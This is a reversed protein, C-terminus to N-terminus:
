KKVSVWVTYTSGDFLTARLLWTGQGNNGLGKTSLNFHWETGTLRFQNGTTAADTPTADIPDDFTTSNSYKIAQLTHIGTTLPAGFCVANFKVPITSNLKFSKVPNAFSGGTGTEVAGGIPPLFGNFASCATLVTVTGNVYALTYNGSTANECKTPYSGILSGVTYTTSCAPQVTLDTPDDGAVFGSYGATITPVPDNFTITHSSATITLSAKSVTLQGNVYHINYNGVGTGVAASPVINYPSGAVPAGAAAGTSTLTISDVTDANVLGALSFDTSPTTQDFVVTDGYTKTKNSATITLDRAEVTLSGNVYSIDYNALGTGVANSPIIDYPSGAVTATAAAGASTLTINTVTDTNVLGVVSFDTSPSTQDFVVTDGYTKTKNSATITLDRAEVTLSGNVYSINYNAIGTGVAASPIITYPSGAVTATAAAGASTLTISDVTDTNVLGVVSFDTSPSTQDFVVTEGYTKTKNSATITLDRAEITLSGNVYSINYNALSTGVAASPVINYPSGAVTATAAAGTSTLTISDVTDGNVLGVVSFDTSPSTQDFVVTDGYTKTKNSATVTLDRAEVTLSGNVYSIDYNAQATGVADSPIITYPSGAVTATAAAGASTLTISDVTDTNVLGVVSFDTSPTTQDFVVTDGYTKTKSSATITLDRAEVTLSGNVYSINYNSLGTGVAASPIITYPSGAVTATAAAGASNLTISDVTDTNVLGVVSFDTSPTTQDFVVTDGYTKTKNSATVTLDRAEVTLSGNVYSINYNALGTGVAASPIITYPSGAVTATAAAGASTLTISDVTDTNVLGVVSFDTSPTTQDFVVTDGYTKTKNSATVTLDRAEVTLSGNVYSINYNSLGTGVAASPIINYPSGAVTATAAAGTSTLTISDVTDSNVLGVVSFDTSPVTQDFVVTDGYTKTKSSATITLTAANITQTQTAGALGSASVTLDHTGDGRGTAKYFFSASNNGAAIVMSTIVTTCGANSYFTGSGGAGFNGSALNVTTNATVNTPVSAANQTQISIAPLCQAYTGNHDGTTFALKTASAATVTVQPDQGHQNDFTYTTTSVPSPATANSYTLQFTTNNTCTGTAPSPASQRITVVMGSVSQLSVTCPNGGSGAVTVQGAGAAVQPATWGAPITFLTTQQNGANQATFTWVFTNTSGAAVTQTLPTVNFSNADTFTTQATNGSSLGRAGVIFKMDLDYDQVLYEGSFNGESDAVVDLGREQPTHPDEHIKLRVTEGAQFGRGTIIATEGPAYDTKNTTIVASSSSVVATSNLFSGAGNVGGVILAQGNLETITQGSRDFLQDTAGAYFLAARIQSNLIQGALGTCTDSEPLVHAYAAFNQYAPDFIEMSRDNSGGIIQVKGDFLVRLHPQVRAVSLAGEIVSFGSGGFIEGSNLQNGATSRGGVVLVRGDPLLAASHLSRAVSMNGAATSSSLAADILEASGNAEGGAIFLRGDAFLTASHGARAVSLSPGNAFTGTAPDFIETTALSGGGDRGGAILVRGNGLLTASHEARAANMNGTASFTGAVPDFLEAGNLAGTSNEGGAILVRGDQLRTATHGRRETGLTASQDPAEAEAHDPDLVTSDANAAFLSTADGFLMRGASSVTSGLATGAVAIAVLLAILRIPQIKNSISFRSHSDPSTPFM